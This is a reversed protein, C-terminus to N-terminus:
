SVGAKVWAVGASKGRFNQKNAEAECGRCLLAIKDPAPVYCKQVLIVPKLHKPVARHWSAEWRPGDIVPALKGCRFCFAEGMGIYYAQWWEQDRFKDDWAEAIQITTASM